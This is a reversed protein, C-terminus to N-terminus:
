NDEQNQLVKIIEDLVSLEKKENDNFIIDKDAETLQKNCLKDLQEKDTIRSMADDLLNASRAGIISFIKNKVEENM